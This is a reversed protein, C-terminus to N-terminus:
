GGREAAVQVHAWYLGTCSAEQQAGVISQAGHWGVQWGV